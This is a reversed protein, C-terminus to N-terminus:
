KNRKKKSVKKIWSGAQGGPAQVDRKACNDGYYGTFCSCVGRSYDCVGRNACDVHCKNGAAGVEAGGPPTKGECNEENVTTEPDDGSPCRILGCHPGFYEAVQTEGSGLGVPWSSDCLCGFTLQADWAEVDDPGYANAARTLPEAAGEETLDAMSLCRGHGSCDNPCRRRQCADGTFPANCMCVGTGRDCAGNGSCEQDAHAVARILTADFWPRGRPCTMQSCDASAAGGELTDTALNGFGEYCACTNRCYNCTGHGSCHN